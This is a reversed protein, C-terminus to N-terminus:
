RAGGIVSLISIGNNSAGSYKFAPLLYLFSSEYENSCSAPSGFVYPFLVCILPLCVEWILSAVDVNQAVLCLPICCTGYQLGM